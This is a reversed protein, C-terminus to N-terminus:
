GWCEQFHKHSTHPFLNQLATLEVLPVALQETGETSSYLTPKRWQRGLVQKM